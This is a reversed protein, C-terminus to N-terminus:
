ERDDGGTDIRLSFSGVHPTEREVALYHDIHDGAVRCSDKREGRGVAVHEGQGQYSLRRCVGGMAPPVERDPAARTAELARAPAEGVADLPGKGEPSR